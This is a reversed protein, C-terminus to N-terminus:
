SGLSIYVDCGFEFEFSLCRMRGMDWHGLYGVM